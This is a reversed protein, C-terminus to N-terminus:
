SFRLLFRGCISARLVDHNSYDRLYEKQPTLNAQKQRSLFNYDIALITTIKQASM